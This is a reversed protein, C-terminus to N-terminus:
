FCFTLGSSICNCDADVFSIKPPTDHSCRVGYFCLSRGPLTLDIVRIRGNRFLSAVIRLKTSRDDKCRLEVDARCIWYWPRDQGRFDDCTMKLISITGGEPNLACTSMFHEIIIPAYQSSDKLIQVCREHEGTEQAPTAPSDLPQRQIAPSGSRTQQVVHTLEHALLRQGGPTHPRYEGAGFFVEQGRTFARADLDRAARAAGGDHHLRVRSFDFGFRPELTRRISLPVPHGNGRPAGVPVEAAPAPPVWPVPTIPGAERGRQVAAAARDAEQEYRDGPPHVRLRPQLRAGRLANRRCAPCTGAPGAARGCACTRQVLGAGPPTSSFPASTQRSRRPAHM